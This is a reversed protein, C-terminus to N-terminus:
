PIWHQYRRGQALDPSLALTTIPLADQRTSSKLLVPYTPVSDWGHTWSFELQSIHSAGGWARM